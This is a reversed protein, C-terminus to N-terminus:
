GVVHGSLEEGRHRTATLVTEMFPVVEYLLLDSLLVYDRSGLAETAAAMTEVFGPWARNLTDADPGAGLWVSRLEVLNCFWRLGDQATSFLGLGDRMRDAQLDEAVRTMADRLRPVFDLATEVADRVLSDQTKEETDPV